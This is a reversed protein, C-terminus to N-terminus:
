HKHTFEIKAMRQEIQLQSIGASWRKESQVWAAHDEHGGGEKNHSHRCNEKHKEASVFVHVFAFLEPKKLDRQQHARSQHKERPACQHVCQVPAVRARSAAIRARSAADRINGSGIALHSLTRHRLLKISQVVDECLTGRGPTHM